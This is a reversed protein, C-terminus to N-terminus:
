MFGAKSLKKEDENWEFEAENMQNLADVKEDFTNQQKDFQRQQEDFDRQQGISKFRNFESFDGFLSGFFANKCKLYNAHGRGWINPLNLKHELNGTYIEVKDARKYYENESLSKTSDCTFFNLANFWLPKISKSM